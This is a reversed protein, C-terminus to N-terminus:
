RSSDSAHTAHAHRHPLRLHRTSGAAGLSVAVEDRPHRLGAILGTFLSRIGVTRRGIRACRAAADRAAERELESQHQHALEEAAYWNNVM